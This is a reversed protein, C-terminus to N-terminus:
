SCMGLFMVALMELEVVAMMMMGRGCRVACAHYVDRAHMRDMGVDLVMKVLGVCSSGCAALQAIANHSNERICVM